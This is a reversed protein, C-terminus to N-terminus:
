LADLDLRKCHAKFEGLLASAAQSLESDRRRTVAGIRAFGFSDTNLSTLKTRGFEQVLDTRLMEPSLVAAFGSERLLHLITPVSDTRVIRWPPKIRKAEFVSFFMRRVDDVHASLIWACGALDRLSVTDAGALPHDVSVAVVDRSRFLIDQQLDDPVSMAASPTSVVFDLKGHSLDIFLDSSTGEFTSVTLKPRKKALSALAKPMVTAEFFAGVGVNVHGIEGGALSELEAEALRLEAVALRARRYLQKGYITPEAGFRGRDFLRQGGISRELRAISGSLAPQTIALKEAARGFSGEEFVAVFHALQRLEM